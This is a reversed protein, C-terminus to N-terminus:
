YLLDTKLISEVEDLGIPEDSVTRSTQKSNNLFTNNQTQGNRQALVSELHMREFVENWSVIEGAGHSCFVSDSPNLTDKSADYGIRELVEDTNHCPKYGAM